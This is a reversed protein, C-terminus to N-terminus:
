LNGQHANNRFGLLTQEQGLFIGRSLKKANYKSRVIRRVTGALLDSEKADRPMVLILERIRGGITTISSQTFAVSGFQKRVVETNLLGLLLYPSMKKRDLVRLRAFHGQLVIKTDMDTIIATKGIMFTGDKVMLIDGARVDQSDKVANYVQESVCHAPDECVEWNAIDGTRVFPVTGGGYSDADPVKGGSVIEIVGQDVLEGVSVQRHGLREYRARDSLTNLNYYKPLWINNQLDKVSMLTGLETPKCRGAQLRDLFGPIDGMDDGETPRRRKDHGCTLAYSMFLRYDSRPRSSKRLFLLHTKTNTSPRFANAPVDLVGIIEARTLISQRVYEYTHNSLVGDPLVIGLRGGEKLLELCRDIFVIQPAQEPRIGGKKWGERDKSWKYGTEFQSLKSKGKVPINAGFPPNTVVVDFMGAKILARSEPNWQSPVDLADETVIGSRGDGLIIMYSKAVKSLVSDREIGRIYKRAKQVKQTKIEDSDRGYRKGEKDVERHIHRLCEVLFGGSGCAPDIVYETSKPKIIDIVAKVVNRPTFFQGQEGRLSPGIFVEFADAVVDREARLLSFPQLRAVVYSVSAPDLGIEDGDDFVDSYEAKTENFRRVIRGHVEDIPEGVGMRFQVADNDPTYREDYLKCLILNIMEQSLRQDNVINRANAALHNRITKFEATLNHPPRLDRRKYRGIDELREGYSPINPIDSFTVSGGQEHKQIALFGNGNYWVGMKANSFKLYNELQKRGDTQTAAKCEVIIYITNDNHRDSSFVAIDVPYGKKDSPSAKVRYQKRTQIHPKPYNYDEVLKRSFPQVADVEEPTANIEKESVYDVIKEVTNM